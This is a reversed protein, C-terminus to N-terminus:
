MDNHTFECSDGNACKGHEGWEPCGDQVTQVEYEGHAFGCSDGFKCTGEQWNRCIITKLRATRLGKTTRREKAEKKKQKPKDTDASKKKRRRRKKEPPSQLALTTLDTVNGLERLIEGVDDTPDDDDAMVPKASLQSLIERASKEGKTDFIGITDFINVSATPASRVYMDM